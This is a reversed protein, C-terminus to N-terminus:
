WERRPPARKKKPQVITVPDSAPFTEELGEELQREEEIQERSREQAKFQGSDKRETKEIMIESEKGDARRPGPFVSFRILAIIREGGFPPDTRLRGSSAM